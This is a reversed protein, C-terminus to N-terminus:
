SSFALTASVDLSSLKLNHCFIQFASTGGFILFKPHRARWFPRATLTFKTLLPITRPGVHGLHLSPTSVTGSINIIHPWTSCTHYMEGNRNLERAHPSQNQLNLEFDLPSECLYLKTPYKQVRVHDMQIAQWAQHKSDLCTFPRADTLLAIISSPSYPFAISNVIEFAGLKLHSLFHFSGGM